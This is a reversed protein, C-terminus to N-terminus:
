QAVCATCRRRCRVDWPLRGHGGRDGGCREKEERELEAELQKRKQWTDFVAQNDSDRERLYEVDKVSILQTSKLGTALTMGATSALHMKSSRAPPVVPQLETYEASVYGYCGILRGLGPPDAPSYSSFMGLKHNTMSSTKRLGTPRADDAGATAGLGAAASAVFQQHRYPSYQGSAAFTPGGSAGRGSTSPPNHEHLAPLREVIPTANTGPRSASTATTSSSATPIRSGGGSALKTDVSATM